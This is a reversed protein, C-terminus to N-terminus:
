DTSIDPEVTPVPNAIKTMADTAIPTINALDERKESLTGKPLKEM